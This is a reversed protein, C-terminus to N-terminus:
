AFVAVADRFYFRAVEEAADAQTIVFFWNLDIRGSRLEGMMIDRANVIAVHLADELTALELGQDDCVVVDSEHLHFFYRAM